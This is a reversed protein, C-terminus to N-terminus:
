KVAKILDDVETLIKLNPHKDIGDILGKHTVLYQTANPFIEMLNSVNSRSNELSQNSLNFYLINDIDDKDKVDVLSKIPLNPGLYV